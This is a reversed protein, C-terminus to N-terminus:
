SVPSESRVLLLPLAVLARGAAYANSHINFDRVNRKEYVMSYIINGFSFGGAKENEQLLRSYQNLGVEVLTSIM